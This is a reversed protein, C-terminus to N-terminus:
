LWAPIIYNANSVDRFKKTKMYNHLFGLPLPNNVFIEAYGM